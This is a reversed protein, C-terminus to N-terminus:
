NQKEKDKKICNRKNRLCFKSMENKQAATKIGGSRVRMEEKFPGQGQVPYPCPM